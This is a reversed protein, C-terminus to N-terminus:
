YRYITTYNWIIIKIHNIQNWINKNIFLYLINYVLYYYIKYKKIIYIYLVRYYNNTIIMIIKIENQTNIQKLFM